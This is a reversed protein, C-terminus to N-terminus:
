YINLFKYSKHSLQRYWVPKKSQVEGIKEDSIFISCM